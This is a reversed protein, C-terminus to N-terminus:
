PNSGYYQTIQRKLELEGPQYFGNIQYSYNILELITRAQDRTISM